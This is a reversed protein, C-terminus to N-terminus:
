KEDSDSSIQHMIDSSSELSFVAIFDVTPWMPKWYNQGLFPM